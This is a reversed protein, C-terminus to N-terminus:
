AASKDVQNSTQVCKVSSNGVGEIQNVDTDSVGFDIDALNYEANFNKALGFFFRMRWLIKLM